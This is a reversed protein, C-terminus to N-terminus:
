KKDVKNSSIYDEKNRNYIANVKDFHNNDTYM